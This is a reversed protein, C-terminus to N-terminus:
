NLTNTKSSGPTVGLFDIPLFPVKSDDLMKKSLSSYSEVISPILSTSAENNILRPTIAKPSTTHSSASQRSFSSRSFSRITTALFNNQSSGSQEKSTIYHQPPEVIVSHRRTTDLLRSRETSRQPSIQPPLLTKDFNAYWDPKQFHLTHEPVRRESMHYHAKQLIIVVDFLVTGLSGVMFPLQSWFVAKLDRDYYGVSVLYLDTGISTSYLLNGTIALLFLFVSTGKTSKLRYNKVIQPIRSLLYFCSCMWALILGVDALTVHHPFFSSQERFIAPAAEVGPITVAATTLIRAALFSTGRKKGKKAALHGSRPSKWPLNAPHISNPSQLLNHPIRHHPYVRTYYWFQLALICDIFCYYLALSTQFPLARSLVCGVLNTADGLMWIVLFSLSVGSVSQNIHNELIQPLQAFLWVSVSFIGLYRSADAVAHLDLNVLASFVQM